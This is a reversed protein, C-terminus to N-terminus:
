RKAAKRAEYYGIFLTCPIIIAAGLYSYATPLEHFFFYGIGMSVLLELYRFPALSSASALAFAQLLCYLILNSGAGLAILWGLESANPSRWVGMTPFTVLVLAVLSSYFLMSLTSEQTVYKKNLIDLLGFLVAAIVFYLSGQNLSQLDPRLVLIIGVFGGLTAVWM